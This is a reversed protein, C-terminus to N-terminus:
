EGAHVAADSDPEEDTPFGHLECLEEDTMDLFREWSAGGHARKEKAWGLALLRLGGDTVIQERTRDLATTMLLWERQTLTRQLDALRETAEEIQARKAADLSSLAADRDAQTNM